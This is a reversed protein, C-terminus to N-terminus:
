RTGVTRKMGIAKVFGKSRKYGLSQQLNSCHAALCRPIFMATGAIATVDTGPNYDM